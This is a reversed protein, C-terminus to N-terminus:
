ELANLISNLQEIFDNIQKIEKPSKNIPKNLYDAQNYNAKINERKIPKGNATFHKEIFAFQNKEKIFGNENLLHILYPILREDKKWDIKNIPEIEKQPPTTQNPTQKLKERDIILKLQNAKASLISIIFSYSDNKKDKNEIEFYAKACDIFYFKFYNSNLVNVKDLYMETAFKPRDIESALMLYYMQENFYNILFNTSKPTKSLIEIKEIFILLVKKYNGKSNNIVGDTEKSSINIWFNKNIENDMEKVSDLYKFYKDKDIQPIDKFPIKNYVKDFQVLFPQIQIIQKGEKNYMPKLEIVKPELTLKSKEM